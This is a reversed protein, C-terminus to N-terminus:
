KLGHKMMFDEGSTVKAGGQSVPIDKAQSQYYNNILAMARDFTQRYRLPVDNRLMAQFEPNKYFEPAEGDEDEMNLAIMAALIPKQEPNVFRLVFQQALKVDAPVKGSGEQPNWKSGRGVEKWGTDGYRYTVIESGQQVTQISGIKPLDPQEPPAEHFDGVQPKTWLTGAKGDQVTKIATPKQPQPLGLYRLAIDNQMLRELNVPRDFIEGGTTGYMSQNYAKQLEKRQANHFLMRQHEADRLPAGEDYRRKSEDFSKNYRHHQLAGHVGRELQRSLPTLYPNLAQNSFRM